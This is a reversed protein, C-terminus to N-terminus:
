NLLEKILLDNIPEKLLKKRFAYFLLAILVYFGAVVFFGYYMKGLASGIWLALGINLFFLAFLIALLIFIKSVISAIIGSAKDIVKLKILQIKTEIYNKLTSFLQEISNLPNDHM